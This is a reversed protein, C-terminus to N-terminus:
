YVLIWVRMDQSSTSMATAGLWGQGETSPFNHTPTPFLSLGQSLPYFPSCSCFAYFVDRKRGIGERGLCSPGSANTPCLSTLSSTPMCGLYLGLFAACNGINVTGVQWRLSDYWKMHRRDLFTPWPEPSDAWRTFAHCGSNWFGCPLLLSGIGVLQGRGEM